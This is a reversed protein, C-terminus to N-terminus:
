LGNRNILLYGKYETLDLFIYKKHPESFFLRMRMSRIEREQVM